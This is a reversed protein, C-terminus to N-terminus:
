VTSIRTPGGRITVEVIFRDPRSFTVGTLIPTGDPRYPTHRANILPFGTPLRGFLYARDEGLASATFGIRWESVEIRHKQLLPFIFDSALEGRLLEGLPEPLYLVHLSVPEVDAFALKEHRYVMTGEPVGLQGAVEAEAPERKFGIEKIRPEFGARRIEDGVSRDPDMVREIRRRHTVFIGLGQHGVLLGEYTLEHLARRVTIASVRFERTLDALSPIRSDPPYVGQTIRRRLEAAVDGYLFSRTVVGRAADHAPRPREARAIPTVQIPKRGAKGRAM